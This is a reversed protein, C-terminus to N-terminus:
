LQGNKQYVVKGGVITYAIKANLWQPPSTSFLDTDIVTIDALMGPILKGKRTEEFAGYASGWTYAKLAEELPIRQEPFWGEAPEGKITQRTVAAYIGM